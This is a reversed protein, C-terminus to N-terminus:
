KSACFCDVCAKEFNSQEERWPSEMADVAIQHADRAATFEEESIEDNSFCRKLARISSDCGLTAAIVLHKVARDARGRRANELHALTFRAGVHGAIAADELVLCEMEENKKVGRGDRYLLSLLYLADVNGLDAAKKWCDFAGRFNGEHYHMKGTEQIALPDNAAVREVNNKSVEKETKPVRQRCLPCTHRHEWRALKNARCCGKCVLKSCHIQLSSRLPDIPLPLFCIPCDGLHTSKPQAFLIQDRSGLTSDRQPERTQESGENKGEVASKDVEPVDCITCSVATVALAQAPAPAPAPSNKMKEINSNSDRKSLSLIKVRMM